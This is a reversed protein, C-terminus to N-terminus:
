KGLSGASGLLFSMQASERTVEAKRPMKRTKKRLNTMLARERMCYGLSWVACTNGMLLILWIILLIIRASGQVLFFCICDTPSSNKVRIGKTSKYRSWDCIIFIITVLMRKVALM